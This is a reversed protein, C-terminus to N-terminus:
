RLLISKLWKISLNIIKPRNYNRINNRAMIDMDKINFLFYEHVGYKKCLNCTTHVSRLAQIENIPTELYNSVTFRKSDYVGCCLQVRGLVDLILVSEQLYCHLNNRSQAVKLAEKLPLALNAILAQDDSSITGYGEEGLTSLVKELPLWVAWMPNFEFGLQESFVKMPLEDNLNSLYRHFAVTIITEVNTEAKIEALRFMNKKVQEIDGRKHTKGYTEQTFGSLSIRISSPNESIVEKLHFIKNLNTSLDCKLGLKNIVRIMEPLKPHLLPEAWNYLGVNTIQCEQIAKQLIRELTEPSMVGQPNKVEATNGVPCSPCRLNCTGLIDIYFSFQPKM